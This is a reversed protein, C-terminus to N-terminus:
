DEKQRSYRIKGDHRKAEQYGAKFLVNASSSNGEVVDGYITKYGLNDFGYDTLMQVAKRTYGQKQFEAGLYYGIEGQTPNDEDPTLNISGVLQGQRNRIAFRLRAPNKPHEISERVKELTPYKDATNDGPQSLHARNGDILAFIEESDQSVFQRLVIDGDPSLIEIRLADYVNGQLLGEEIPLDGLMARIMGLVELGEAQHEPGTQVLRMYEAVWGRMYGQFEAEDEPTNLEESEIEKQVLASLQDAQSRILELGEPKKAEQDFGAEGSHGTTTEGGESM